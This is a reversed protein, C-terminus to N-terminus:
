HLSDGSGDDSDGIHVKREDVRKKNQYVFAICLAAVIMLACLCLAGVVVALVLEGTTDIM